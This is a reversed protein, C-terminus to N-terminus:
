GKGVIRAVENKVRTEEEGDKKFYDLKLNVQIERGYLEEPDFDRWEGLAAEVLARLMGQKGEDIRTSHFVSGPTGVVPKGDIGLLQDAPATHELRWSIYPNGEKSSREASGAIRMTYPGPKVPVFDAGASPEAAPNVKVIPM